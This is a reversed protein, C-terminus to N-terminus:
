AVEYSSTLSNAKEELLDAFHDCSTTFLEQQYLKQDQLFSFCRLSQKFKDKLYCTLCQFGVLKLAFKIEITNSFSQM